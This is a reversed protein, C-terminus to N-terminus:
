NYKFLKPLSAEHLRLNKAKYFMHKWKFNIQNSYSTGKDDNDSFRYIQIQDCIDIKIM